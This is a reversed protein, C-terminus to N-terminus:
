HRRVTFKLSSIGLMAELKTLHDVGEAKLTQCGIRKASKLNAESDDVLLIQSFDIDLKNNELYRKIHVQKGAQGILEKCWNRNLSAGFEKQNQANTEDVIMACFDNNERLFQRDPWTLDLLRKIAPTGGDVIEGENANTKFIVKRPIAYTVFSDECEYSIMNEKKGSINFGGHNTVIGIKIGLTAAKQLIEFWRKAYPIEILQLPANMKLPAVYCKGDREIFGIGGTHCDTLTLDLDILIVKPLITLQGTSM